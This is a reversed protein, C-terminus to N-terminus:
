NKGKSQVNCQGNRGLFLQVLFHLFFWVLSIIGYIMFTTAGHFEDYLVGGLLSGVSVGLFCVCVCM